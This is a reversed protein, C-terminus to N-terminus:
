IAAPLKGSIGALEEPINAQRQSNALSCLFGTFGPLRPYIM